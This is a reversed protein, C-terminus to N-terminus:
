EGSVDGDGNPRAADGESVDHFAFLAYGVTVGAVSPRFDNADLTFDVTMDIRSKKTDLQITETDRNTPRTATDCRGSYTARLALTGDENRSLSYNVSATDRNVGPLHTVLSTEPKLPHFLTDFVPAFTVQYAIKSIGLLMEENLRGQEDTCFARLADEVDGANRPLAEGDVHYNARQLDSRCEALMGDVVPKGAAKRLHDDIDARISELAPNSIPAYPNSEGVRDPAPVAIGVNRLMAIADDSMFERPILRSDQASLGFEGATMDTRDRLVGALSEMMVTYRSAERISGAYKLREVGHADDVTRSGEVTQPFEREFWAAGQGISRMAGGESTMRDAIADARPQGGPALLFRWFTRYVADPNETGTDVGSERIANTMANCVVSLPAQLAMPGLPEALAPLEHRVELYAGGMASVMDARINDHMAQDLIKGKTDADLPLRNVEDRVAAREEVFDDILEGVLAHLATENDGELARPQHFVAYELRSQLTGILDAEFRAPDINLPPERRSDLARSLLRRSISDPDEFSTKSLADRAAEFERKVVSTLIEDAERTTVLHKGNDGAASIERQVIRAIREVDVRKHMDPRSPFMQRSHHELSSQLLSLNSHIARQGLYDHSVEANRNVVDARLLNAQDVIEQVHRARLPKGRAMARDMGTSRVLHDAIERGYRKRLSTIFSGTAERNESKRFRGIWRAVRGTHVTVGTDNDSLAVRANGRVARATSEFSDLRIM